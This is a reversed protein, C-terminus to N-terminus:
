DADSGWGSDPEFGFAVEVRAKCPITGAPLDRLFLRHADARCLACLKDTIRRRPDNVPGLVFRVSFRPVPVVNNHGDCKDCTQGKAVDKPPLAVHAPSRSRSSCRRAAIPSRSRASHNVAPRM